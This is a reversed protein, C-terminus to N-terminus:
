VEPRRKVAAAAGGGASIKEVRRRRGRGTRTDARAQASCSGWPALPRMRGKRGWEWAESRRRWQRGFAPSSSSVTAGGRWLQEAQVSGAKLEVEDERLQGALKRGWVSMPAGGRWEGRGGGRARRPCAWVSRGSGM